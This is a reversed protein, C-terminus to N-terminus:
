DKTSMVGCLILPRFLPLSLLLMLLGMTPHEHDVNIGCRCAGENERDGKKERNGSLFLGPFLGPLTYSMFLTFMDRTDKTGYIDM